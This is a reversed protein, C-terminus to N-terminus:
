KGKGLRLCFNGFTETDDTRLQDREQGLLHTDGSQCFERGGRDQAHGEADKIKTYKERRKGRQGM